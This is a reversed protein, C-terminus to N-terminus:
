LVDELVGTIHIRMGADALVRLAAMTNADPLNEHPPGRGDLNLRFIKLRRRRATTLELIAIWLPEYLGVDSISPCHIVLTTLRIFLSRTKQFSVFLSTATTVSMWAEFRKLTPAVRFCKLLTNVVQITQGEGLILSIYLVELKPLSLYHIIETDGHPNETDGFILRRLNPLVIGEELGLITRFNTRQVAFVCETLNPALRLLQVVHTPSVGSGEALHRDSMKFTELSPFPEPPSASRWLAAHLPGDPVDFGEALWIELHRLQKARQWIIDTVEHELIGELAISLPCNRARDLWIPLVETFGGACPFTIHISSWLEPTGLAISSWSNCVSLFLTPIRAPGPQAFGNLTHIFIQSSIEFPLRSMPDRVMNLEYQTQSKERELQKLLERHAKIENDLKAVRAWLGPMKPKQVISIKFAIMTQPVRTDNLSIINSM